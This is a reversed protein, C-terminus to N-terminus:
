FHYTIGARITTTNYDIGPGLDNKLVDKFGYYLGEVRASLSQSFKYEIGGGAVFGTATDSISASIGPVSATLKVGTFAVGGTGYLLVPGAAYGLRGRFSGLIPTTAELSAGFGSITTRGTRGEVDGEIGVVANGFQWNYGLHIGFVGNNQDVDIGSFSFKGWSGGAQAGLYAGQWIEVPESQAQAVSVSGLLVGAALLTKNIRM